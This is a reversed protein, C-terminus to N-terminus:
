NRFEPLRIKGTILNNLLYKKQAEIIERQKELIDIEEDATSLVEAIAVQEELSKPIIIKSKLFADKSLTFRTAGQSKRQLNKLFIKGKFVYASFSYNLLNNKPRLRVLHYSFLTDKLDEAVVASHGIDDPTESSPTFLMDGKKLNSSEIQGNKASVEQFKDTSLIVNRKYVDMYNLLKILKEGTIIKKNVSSTRIEGIEKLEVETWKRDFGKLRKKGTLLQQMLSKKISKKIEIKKELKELYGDWTELVKVIDNQEPLPPVLYQTNKISALSLNRITTGTLESNFYNKTKSTNLLFFIFKKNVKNSCIIYAVSKGLVVKEQKYYATNGITGNISLLLTRDNLYRKHKQYEDFCVSKTKDNFVISGNVINNGNIFFYKTNDTYKPTSHLGDSIKLSTKALKSEEWTKPIKLKKNAM